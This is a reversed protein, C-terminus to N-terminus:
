KTAGGSGARIEEIVPLLQEMHFAPSFRAATEAAGRRLRRHREPDALARVIADALASESLDGPACMEGNRGPELWHSLGGSDFAASPLGAACADLGITGFPEPWLSPIALLDCRRMLAAVESQPVWGPAELRVGRRRSTARIREEEPGTGAVVLRLPRGLREGALAIAGVLREGGKLRTLRGAFLVDGTQPRDPDPPPEPGAEVFYSAPLARVRDPSLGHALLERRIFGSACVIASYKGLIRRRATERALGRAASFPNWGGCRRVLSLPVCAAGLERECVRTEPFAFLKTGTACVGSHNHAFHMSAFRSALGEELRLDLIGHTYVVDPGWAGIAALTAEADGGHRWTPVDRDDPPVRESGERADLEHLFGVEHGADAALVITRRVYSEAGGALQATWNAFLIRM